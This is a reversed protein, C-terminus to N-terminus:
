GDNPEEVERIWDHETREAERIEALTDLASVMARQAEQEFMLSHRLRDLLQQYLEETRRDM